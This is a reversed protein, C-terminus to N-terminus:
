RKTTRMARSLEGSLGNRVEFLEVDDADIRGDFNFDVAAQAPTSVVVSGAPGDNRGPAWTLACVCSSSTLWKAVLFAYDESAVAGNDSFDADRFAINFPCGGAVALDGFQGLFWTVDNIDVDGDNDTDGGHLSLVSTATWTPGTLMLPVTNWQTHQQDKGCLSTFTGCPVAITATARVPTLVNADHDTFSLVTDTFSACANTSFHICRMVPTSVGVLEVTVNIQNTPTVTVTFNCMSSNGCDDTATCTVLTAGIPFTSGSAPTCVITPTADCNDMATPATFTVVAGACSGADAAVTINSPCSSLVPATDDLTFPNPDVKTTALPVGQYSLESAFPGGIQFSVPVGTNCVAAPVVDFVLTALLADDQTGLGGFASSGDLELLGDDLQNISSIHAPFPTAAYTSLDGRYVLDNMDYQVFAQYGMAADALTMDLNVAIQYGPAPSADDPCASATTLVLSGTQAGTARQANDFALFPFSSAPAWAYRNGGVTVGIIDGPDSRVWQAVITGASDAVSFECALVGGGSDYFRHHFTYWGSATIAAPAVGGQAFGPSNNSAAIVFRNVGAGPPTLDTSDLFSANFIFDRRHTGDPQNIASSWDFRSDNVWGGGVDLYIDISTRYGGAPFPAGAACGTSACGCIDGYGGWNGAPTVGEAHWSGNASTVGNTGSPVRTIAYAPGVFTNWGSTNAEFDQEYLGTVCAYYPTTGSPHTAVPLGPGVVQATGATVTTLILMASCFVVSPLSKM